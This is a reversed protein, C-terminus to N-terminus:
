EQLKGNDLIIKLTCKEVTSLRHAIIIVTKSGTLADICQSIERETVSDLASTAEDLILVDPNQYLARAIGIRQRQGGSLSIGREGVIADLGLPLEQVHEKLQSRELALWVREDDIEDDELGFAVNRRITDDSLFINQPIYGLYSQWSVLSQHIDHGDVLVRGATPRLLGLIIDALTTKGAGSPGILAVSAGKPIKLTIGRLSPKSSGPYQYSVNSLTIEKEFAMEPSNSAAHVKNLEQGGDALVVQISPRYYFVRTIASQIRNVSPMLRVAAVAFLALISLLEATSGGSIIVGAVILFLGSFAVTELFLRPMQNLVMAYRSADSFYREHKAFDALFYSERGLLKVEKIGGLAQSISKIREAQANQQLLGFRLVKGRVLYQFGITVGGLILITILAPGPSFWLLLGMMAIIVAAESFVTLLPVFVNTFFLSVENGVNRILVSSNTQMHYEYPKSLYGALMRESMRSMERYIFSFQFNSSAALYGNKVLFFFFLVVASVLQFSALSKMSLADYIRFLVPQTFLYDPSNVMAIFPVIMAASGAELIAAGLNLVIIIALKRRARPDFLSLFVGIGKQGNIKSLLDLRETM